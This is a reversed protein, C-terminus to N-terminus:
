RARGLYDDNREGVSEVFQLVAGLATVRESHAARMCESLESIAEDCWRIVTSSSVELGMHHQPIDEERANLSYAVAKGRQEELERLFEAMYHLKTIVPLKRMASTYGSPSCGAFM